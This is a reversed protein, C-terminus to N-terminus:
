DRANFQAPAEPWRTVLITVVFSDSLCDGVAAASPGSEAYLQNIFEAAFRISFLAGQPLVIAQHKPHAFNNRFHPLVEALIKSYPEPPSFIPASDHLIEEMQAQYERIRRVHSFGEDRILGGKIAKYLLKGFSWSSDQKGVGLRERLAFELLLFTLGEAVGYFAYVFRGYLCVNKITEFYSRIDEPVTESLTIESLCKHDTELMWPFAAM